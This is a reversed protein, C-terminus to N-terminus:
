SKFFSIALMSTFHAMMINKLDKIIKKRIKLKKLKISSYNVFIITYTQLTYHSLKNHVYIISHNGLNLYNVSKSDWM